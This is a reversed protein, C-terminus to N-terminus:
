AGVGTELEMLRRIFDAELRAIASRSQREHEDEALFEREVVHRLDDLDEGIVGRRTPVLVERDYKVLLGGDVAVYRHAGDLREFSLLGPVLSALFDVHRPLITFNGHVGEASVKTVEEDVLIKTALVIKLRM